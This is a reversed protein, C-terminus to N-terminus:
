EYSTILVEEAKERSKGNSSITRPAVVSHVFYDGYLDRIFETDANSLMVQVGQTVWMDVTEKLKVQDDRGFGESQYNAFTGDYPPDCYVFDGKQPTISRYFQGFKIQAKQLVKAVARLNEADNIKPNKYKGKPVNFKGSKNVRYLGNYCTKNLYIFRAVTEIPDTPEQERVKWYYGEDKNHCIAHKQLLDILPETESSVVHYALVLEENLDALVARQILNELAFFVAGGGVFPEYYRSIDPPLRERIVNVLSRKGGAWKVFPVAKAGRLDSRKTIAASGSFSNRWTSSAM